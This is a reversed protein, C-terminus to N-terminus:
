LSRRGKRSCGILNTLTAVALWVILSIGLGLPWSNLISIFYLASLVCAACGIMGAVAGRAVAAAVGNGDRVGAMSVAAVMVVPFAAFVGSIFKVPVYLSVIWCTIVALGGMFFRLGIEIVDNKM